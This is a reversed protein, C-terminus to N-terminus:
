RCMYCITVITLLYKTFIQSCYLNAIGICKIDSKNAASSSDIALSMACKRKLSFPFDEAAALERHIPSMPADIDDM